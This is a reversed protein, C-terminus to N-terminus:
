IVKFAFIDGSCNLVGKKSLNGLTEKVQFEPMVTSLARKADFTSFEKSPKQEVMSKLKEIILEDSIEARPGQAKEADVKPEAPPVGKTRYQENIFAYALHNAICNFDKIFEVYHCIFLKEDKFIKLSLIFKLYINERNGGLMM